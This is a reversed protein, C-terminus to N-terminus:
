SIGLPDWTYGISPSTPPSIGMSWLEYVGSSGFCGLFMAAVLMQLQVTVESDMNFWDSMTQRCRGQVTGLTELLMLIEQLDAPLPCTVQFPRGAQFPGTESQGLKPHPSTGLVQKLYCYRFGQRVLDLQIMNFWFWPSDGMSEVQGFGLEMRDTGAKGFAPFPPLVEASAIEQHWTSGHQAWRSPWVVRCWGWLWHWRGLHRTMALRRAKRRFIVPDLRSFSSRWFGFSCSDQPASSPKCWSLQRTRYMPNDNKLQFQTTGTQCSVVALKREWIDAKSEEVFVFVM